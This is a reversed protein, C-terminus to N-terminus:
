CDPRYNLKRSFRNPATWLLHGRFFIAFFLVGIGLGFFTRVLEVETTRASMGYIKLFGFNKAGIFASMRM